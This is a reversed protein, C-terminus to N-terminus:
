ARSSSLTFVASHQMCSATAIALSPRQQQENNYKQKDDIGDPENM